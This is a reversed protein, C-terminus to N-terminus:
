MGSSSAKKKAKKAKKAHHKKKSKKTSSSTSQPVAGPTAFVPMALSFVLVSGFLLSLLKKMITFGGHFYVVSPKKAGSTGFRAPGKISTLL